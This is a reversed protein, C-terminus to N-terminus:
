ASMDVDANLWAQHRLRARRLAEDFSVSPETEESRIGEDIAALEDPTPHYIKQETVTEEPM